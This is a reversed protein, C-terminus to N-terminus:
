TTSVVCQRLHSCLVRKVNQTVCIFIIRLLGALCFSSLSGLLENMEPRPENVRLFM